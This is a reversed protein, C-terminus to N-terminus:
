EKVVYYYFTVKFTRTGNERDYHSYSREFGSPKGEAAGTHMFKGDLIQSYYESNEEFYLQYTCIESDKFVLGFDEHDPPTYTTIRGEGPRLAAKEAAEGVNFDAEKYRRLKDMFDPDTEDTIVRVNEGLPADVDYIVAFNEADIPLDATFSIQRYGDKDVYDHYEGEIEKDGLFFSVLRGNTAAYAATLLSLSFILIVAILLPKLRFRHRTMSGEETEMTEILSNVAAINKRVRKRSPKVEDEM